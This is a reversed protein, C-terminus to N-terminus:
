PLRKPGEGPLFLLTAARGGYSARVVNVQDGFRDHLLLHAVRAGELGGPMAARLRIVLADAERDVGRWELRLPRGGQDVLLFRARVYRVLVSDAAGRGAGPVARALDDPYVRIAVTTERRAEDYRLEAVSTHMPHAVTAALLGALAHTVM